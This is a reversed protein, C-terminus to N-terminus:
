SAMFHERPAAALLEAALLTLLPPTQGVNKTDEHFAEVMERVLMRVGGFSVYSDWINLSQPFIRIPTQHLSPDRLLLVGESGVNQFKRWGHMTRAMSVKIVRRVTNSDVTMDPAPLLSPGIEPGNLSQTLRDSIARTATTSATM